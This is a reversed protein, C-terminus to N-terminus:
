SYFHIQFITANAIYAVNTVNIFYSQKLDIKDIDFLRLKNQIVATSNSQLLDVVPYNYLLSEGSVNKITLFFDGMNTFLTSISIAKIKAETLEPYGDFYVPTSANNVTGAFINVPYTYHLNFLRANKM